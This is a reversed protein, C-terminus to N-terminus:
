VGNGILWTLHGAPAVRSAPFQAAGSQVADIVAQKAPDNVLFLVHRAANIVPFTLTLRTSHLQPVGNAVVTKDKEELARTGPFLSATHGDEGMGLLILDHVPAGGAFLQTLKEAYEWAAEQPPLEGRMRLIQSHPIGAPAFLEEYAMRYNSDAHDPPVCREDGFTFWIKDWELPCAALARYVPRPTGGGCLSLIYRDRDHIGDVAASLIIDLADQAFHVTHITKM